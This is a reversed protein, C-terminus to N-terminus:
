TVLTAPKTLLLSASAAPLSLGAGQTHLRYLAEGASVLQVICAHMWSTGLSGKLTM